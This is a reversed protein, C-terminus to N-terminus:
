HFVCNRAAIGGSESLSADYGLENLIKVVEDVRETRSKGALRGRMQEALDDAMDDLLAAQGEEGFLERSHRLLQSALRAYGRPFLELGAVTITYARSPRGGTSRLALLSVLGDRELATLHQQVATRTVALATSLEEITRGAGRHRSLETLLRMRSESVRAVPRAPTAATTAAPSLTM